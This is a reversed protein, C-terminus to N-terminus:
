NVQIGSKWPKACQRLSLALQFEKPDDEDFVSFGNFGSYFISVVHGASKIKEVQSEAHAAEPYPGVLRSLQSETLSIWEQAKTSM